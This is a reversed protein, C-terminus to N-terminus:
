KNERANWEGQYLDYFANRELQNKTLRDVSNVINNGLCVQKTISNYLMKFWSYGSTLQGSTDM